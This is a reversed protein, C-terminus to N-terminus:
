FTKSPIIANIIGIILSGIIASFLGIHFGNVLKSTLILVIVSVVFGAIGRGFPNAGVGIMSELAFSIVIIVITALILTGIGNIRFGPTLFASIALVIATMIIRIIFSKIQNKDESM